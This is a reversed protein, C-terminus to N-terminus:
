GSPNFLDQVISEAKKLTPARKLCLALLYKMLFSKLLKIIIENNSGIKM